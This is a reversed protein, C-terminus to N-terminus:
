EHDEEVVHVYRRSAFFDVSVYDGHFFYYVQLEVEKRWLSMNREGVLILGELKHGKPRNM